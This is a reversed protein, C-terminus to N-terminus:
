LGEPPRRGYRTRLRAGTETIAEETSTVRVQTVAGDHARRFVKPGQAIHPTRTAMEATMREISRLTRHIMLLLAAIGSALVLWSILFALAM